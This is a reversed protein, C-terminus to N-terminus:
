DVIYYFKNLFGFISLFLSVKRYMMEIKDLMKDSCGSLNKLLKPVKSRGTLAMGLCDGSRLSSEYEVGANVIRNRLKKLRKKGCKSKEQDSGVEVGGEADVICKLNFEEM